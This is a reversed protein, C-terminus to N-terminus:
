SVICRLLGWRPGGSAWSSRSKAPCHAWGRWSTALMTCLWESWSAPPRKWAPLFTPCRAYTPSGTTSQHWRRAPLTLIPASCNIASLLLHPTPLSPVSPSQLFGPLTMHPYGGHM